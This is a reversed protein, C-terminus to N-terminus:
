AGAEGDVVLRYGVGHVTILHRPRSADVEVKHRLNLMHTDVTRTSVFDDSGWIRELLRSRSVVQGRHEFLLALMQAEKRSLRHLAGECEVQYAALDVRAPGIAFETVPAETVLQTRRLMAQVRAVLERIGFPKTVYDDAGLQLGLVKDNEEGRATLLLVPTALRQERMERLIELGGRGPLMLDLVVGDYHRTFVLEHAADGDAAFTVDYGEGAFADVLGTRLALDDEVILLRKKMCM